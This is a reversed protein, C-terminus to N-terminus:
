STSNFTPCTIFMDDAANYFFCFRLLHEKGLGDKYRVGGWVFMFRHMAKVDDILKATLQPGYINMIRKGDAPLFSTTKESAFRGYPLQKMNEANLDAMAEKSMRGFIAPDPQPSDRVSVMAGTEFDLAPTKGYNQVLVTITPTTGVEFKDLVANAALYPRDGIYFSQQAIQAQAKAAEAQALLSEAQKKSQDVLSQNAGIIRETQSSGSNMSDLQAKMIATQAMSAQSQRRMVVGHYILVALTVAGLFSSAIVQYKVWKTQKAIWETQEALSAISEDQKRDTEAESEAPNPQQTSSQVPDAVPPAPAAEPQQEAENGNTSTANQVPETEHKTPSAKDNM